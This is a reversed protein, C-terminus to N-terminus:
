VPKVASLLERCKSHAADFPLSSWIATLSHKGVPRVEYRPYPPVHEKTDVVDFLLGEHLQPRVPRIRKSERVTYPNEDCTEEHHDETIAVTASRGYHCNIHHVAGAPVGCAVCKGISPLDEPPEAWGQGDQEHVIMGQDTPQDSPPPIPLKYPNHSTGYPKSPDRGVNELVKREAARDRNEEAALEETFKDPYRARLKAINKQQVEEYTSGSLKALQSVLGLIASVAGIIKNADLGKGYFLWKQMQTMLVGTQAVMNRHITPIDISGSMMPVISIQLADSIEASYWSCDGCEELVNVNDLALGDDLWKSLAEALEGAEGALGICGHLLATAFSGRDGESIGYTLRDIIVQGQPCRTRMALKVYTESNM